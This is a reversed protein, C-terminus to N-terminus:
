SEDRPTSLSRPHEAWYQRPGCGFVRKFAFGFASESAYGAERAIQRMPLDRRLSERAREMRWKMLYDLPPTGVLERFRAAFGSRSMGACKALDAVTWARGPEHHICALAEAIRKDALAGIWNVSGTGQESIYARLVQILAIDALRRIMLSRGIADAKIESDLHLLTDRLIAAAGLSTPIHVFGPLADLLLQASGAEFTFKGGILVTGGDGLRVNHAKGDDYAVLGDQPPLIPDSALVYTPANALLLTDGSQLPLPQGDEVIIWCEGSLVAAFKLVAKAPFRMAWNGGAELRKCRAFRVDLHSLVDSLPDLM